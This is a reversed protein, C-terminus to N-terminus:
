GTTEGFIILRIAADNLVKFAHQEDAVLDNWEHIDECGVFSEFFLILEEALPQFMEPVRASEADLCFCPMTRHKAGCAVFIAGAVSVAKSRPDVSVGKALGYKKICDAAQLLYQSADLDKLAKMSMTLTM